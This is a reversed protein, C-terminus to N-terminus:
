YKTSIEEIKKERKILVITFNLQVPRHIKKHITINRKHQCIWPQLQQILQCDSHQCTCLHQKTIVKMIKPEGLRGGM